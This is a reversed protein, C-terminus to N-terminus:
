EGHELLDKADRILNRIAEEDLGQYYGRVMGKRDALVIRTNHSEPLEESGLKLSETMLKEVIGIDGSLFKWQQASERYKKSYEALHDPTDKEPDVTISLFLLDSEEKLAESVEKLHGNIQPCIHPCSTFFFNLIRVKGDSSSFRFESASTDQLVFDPVPILRPLEETHAHQRYGFVVFGIVVVAFLPIINRLTRLM